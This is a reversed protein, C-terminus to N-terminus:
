EEYNAKILEKFVNSIIVYTDSFENFNANIMAIEAPAYYKTLGVYDEFSGAGLISTTMGNKIEIKFEVAKRLKSQFFDRDIVALENLSDVVRLIDVMVGDTTEKNLVEVYVDAIAAATATYVVDKNGAVAATLKKRLTSFRVDRPDLYGIIM